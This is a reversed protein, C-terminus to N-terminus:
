LSCTTPAIQIYGLTEELENLDRNVEDLVDAAADQDERGSEQESEPLVEM